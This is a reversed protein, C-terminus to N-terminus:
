YLEYYHPNGLGLVCHFFHYAGAIMCLGAILVLLALLFWGFSMGYYSIDSALANFWAVTKNKTQIYTQEWFIFCFLDAIYTMTITLLYLLGACIFTEADVWKHKLQYECPKRYRCLDDYIRMNCDIPEKCTYRTIFFKM